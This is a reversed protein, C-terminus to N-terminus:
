ATLAPTTKPKTPLPTVKMVHRLLADHHCFVLAALDNNECEHQAVALAALPLVTNAVGNATGLSYLSDLPDQEPLFASAFNLAEGTRSPRVDTDSILKWDQTTTFAIAKAKNALNVLIDAQLRQPQSVDKTRKDSFLRSLETTQTPVKYSKPVVLLGAAGEGPVLGEPTNPRYLMHKNDWASITEKDVSSDSVLLLRPLQLTEKHYALNLEDVEMLINSKASITRSRLQIEPSSWSHASLQQALWVEAAVCHSTAWHHPLLWDIQLLPTQTATADDIPKLRLKDLHKDLLRIVLKEALLLNRKYADPWPKADSPLSEEISQIDINKIDAIFAPNYQNDQLSEHPTPRKSEKCAAILEDASEGQPLIFDLAIFPLTWSLTPDEEPESSSSTLTPEDKSILREKVVRATKNVAVYTFLLLLPLGILYLLIDLTNPVRNIILWRSIVALWVLTVMLIILSIGKLIKRLEM